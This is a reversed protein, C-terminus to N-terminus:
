LEEEKPLTAIRAVLAADAMQYARKAWNFMILEDAMHPASTLESMAGMFAVPLIQAAFEDRMDAPHVPTRLLDHLQGMTLGYHESLHERMAKADPKM